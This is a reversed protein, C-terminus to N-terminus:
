VGREVEAKTIVLPPTFRVTTEHTVKALLGKKILRLCFEYAVKRRSSDSFELGVMLGRGRVEKILESKIERLGSLFIEGLTVSNECLKEEVLM